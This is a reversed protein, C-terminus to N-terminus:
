PNSSTLTTDVDIGCGLVFAAAKMLRIAVWLRAKFRREGKLRIRITCNSMLTSMHIDMDASAM